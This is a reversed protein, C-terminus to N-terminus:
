QALLPYILCSSSGPLDEVWRPDLKTLKGDIRQVTESDTIKIAKERRICLDIFSRMVDDNSTEHRQLPIWIV